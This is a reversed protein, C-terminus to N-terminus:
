TTAMNRELYFSLVQLELGLDVSRLSVGEPVAVVGPAFNLFSRVGARVFRDVVEQASPGPVAVVVICGPHEAVLGEVSSPGFVPIASDDALKSPDSDVMAVVRFGRDSFGGYNSLAQGLNGAGAIIVARDGTLGLQRNMQFMLLEIDYGVGRSGYTGLYSLDKRVKAANVGSRAALEESSITPGHGASEAAVDSLVRLYVPLRSVTADPIQRDM